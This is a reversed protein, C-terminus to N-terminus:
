IHIIEYISWLNTVTTHRSEVFICSNPLALQKTLQKKNLVISIMITSFKWSTDFTLSLFSSLVIFNIHLRLSADGLHVLCSLEIRFPVSAPGEHNHSVSFRMIQSDNRLNKPPRSVDKQALSFEMPRTSEGSHRTSDFKLKWCQATANPIYVLHFSYIVCSTILQPTDLSRQLNDRLKQWSFM